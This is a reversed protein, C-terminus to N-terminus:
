KVSTAWGCGPVAYGKVNALIFLQPKSALDLIWKEKVDWPILQRGLPLTAKPALHQGGCPRGGAGRASAEQRGRFFGDRPPKRYEPVLAERTIVLLYNKTSIISM